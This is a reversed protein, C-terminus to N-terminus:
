DVTTALAATSAIQQAFTAVATRDLHPLVKILHEEWDPRFHYMLLHRGRPTTPRFSFLSDVDPAPFVAPALFAEREDAGAPFRGQALLLAPDVLRRAEECWLTIHGRVEGTPTLAPEGAQDPLDLPVGDLTVQLTTPIMRCTLGLTRAAATVALAVFAPSPATREALHYFTAGLLAYLSRADQPVKRVWALVNEWPFASIPHTGEGGSPGLSSRPPGDTVAREVLDDDEQGDMALFERATVALPVHGQGAAEFMELSERMLAHSQEPDGGPHGLTHRTWALVAFRQRVHALVDPGAETHAELLAEARELLSEAANLIWVDTPAGEEHRQLSGTMVAHAMDVMQDAHHRMITVATHETPEPIGATIALAEELRGTSAKVMADLFLLEANPEDDPGILGKAVDVTMAATEWNKIWVLAQAQELRVKLEVPAAVDERRLVAELRLAARAVDAFRDTAVAARMDTTHALLLHEVQDPSLTDLGEFLSWATHAAEAAEDFRQQNQLCQALTTTTAARRYVADDMVADDFEDVVALAERLLSESRALDGHVNAIAGATNALLAVTNGDVRAGERVHHAVHVAHEVLTAAEAWRNQRQCAVLRTVLEHQFRGYMSEVAEGDMLARVVEQVIRHIALMGDRPAVLSFRRLEAVAGYVATGIPMDLTALHLPIFDPALLACRALLEAALQQESGEPSHLAHSLVRGVSLTVAATLTM